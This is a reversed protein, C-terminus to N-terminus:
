RENIKKIFSIHKLYIRNHSESIHYRNLYETLIVLM